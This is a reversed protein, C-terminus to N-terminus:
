RRDMTRIMIDSIRRAQRLNRMADPGAAVTDGLIEGTMSSIAAAARGDALINQGMGKWRYDELGLISLLTPYMDIQGMVDDIRGGVPSNLVIFPTMQEPSVIGQASASELITKRDGALGEHDGTIM